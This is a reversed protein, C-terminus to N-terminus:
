WDSGEIPQFYPIPLSKDQIQQTKHQLDKMRHECLENRYRANPNSQTYKHVDIYSSLLPM